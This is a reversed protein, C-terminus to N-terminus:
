KKLIKLPPKEGAPLDVQAVNLTMSVTSYYGTVGILDVVGQDGFKAKAANFTADSVTHDRQLETCFDYVAKEDDKM